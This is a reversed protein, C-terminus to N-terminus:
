LALTETANRVLEFAEKLNFSDFDSPRLVPELQGELQRNLEQKREESLDVSENGPVDIKAKVMALFDPEQINLGKKRIAHFVDFFDRIAPEKRTIAARVKEAYAEQLTMAGVKFPPLLPQGSFPNM